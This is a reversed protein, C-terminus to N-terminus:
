PKINTLGAAQIYVNGLKQESASAKLTYRAYARIWGPTTADEIFTADSSALKRIYGIVKATNIADPYSYVPLYDTKAYLKDGKTFGYKSAPAVTGSGGGTGGKPEAKPEVEPEEKPKDLKEGPKNVFKYILYGAGALIALGSITVIIKGKTTM